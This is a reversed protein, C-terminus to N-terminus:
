RDPVSDLDKLESWPVGYFAGGYNFNGKQFEQREKSSAYEYLPHKREIKKCDMCISDTNMMSMTHMTTEKECRDCIM